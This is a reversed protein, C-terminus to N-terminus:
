GRQVLASFAAVFVSALAWGIAIFAWRAWTWRQDGNSGEVPRWTSDQGFDIIPLVVDAGYVWSNFCPYAEGCPLPTGADDLTPENPVMAGDREALHFLGGAAVLTVVLLVGAPWRRYGYGVLWGFPRRWFRYALSGKKKTQKLHNLEDDNQAIRMRRAAGEDGSSSYYAALRQYPDTSWDATGQRRVWDLRRKFDADSGLADFRFGRLSLRGNKPWSDEDDALVACRANTLRLGDIGAIAHLLLQGDITGGVFRVTGAAKFGHVLAVGGGVHLRDANLSNGEADATLLTAGSLDLEGDVTAGVLRVSGAAEFGQRLYAEGVHLKDAILSTGREDAGRLKAGDMELNGDITAGVFVIPGAAEFGHRLYADTAQLGSATLSNGYADTGTFTTGILSLHGDITADPINLAKVTSEHLSLHGVRVMEANVVEDSRCGILEIAPARASTVTIGTIVCKGLLLPVRLTAYEFDLPQDVWAGALQVGKPHVPWRTGVCLEYLVPARVRVQDTPRGSLSCLTGSASHSVLELEAPSLDEDNVPCMTVRVRRRSRGLRFRSMSTAAFRAAEAALSEASAACAPRVPAEAWTRRCCRWIQRSSSTAVGSTGALPSSVGDSQAGCRAGVTVQRGDWM